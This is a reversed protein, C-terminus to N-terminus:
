ARFEGELANKPAIESILGHTFATEASVTQRTLVMHLIAKAPMKPLCASIALTPPLNTDMEPLSFRADPDAITIDSQAAFACGFGKAQGQVATLVPVPCRRLDEYVGLIADAVRERFARAQAPRTVGAVIRRGLCFDAGEGSIFVKSRPLGSPLSVTPELLCQRSDLLLVPQLALAEAAHLNM